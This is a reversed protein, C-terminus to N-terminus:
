GLKGCAWVINALERAGCDGLQPKLCQSLRGLLPHASAAPQGSDTVVKAARTIAAWAHIYKFSAGHRRELEELAAISRATSIWSTLLQLPDFLAPTRCTHQHSLRLVCATYAQSAIRKGQPGTARPCLCRMAVLCGGTARWWHRGMGWFSAM